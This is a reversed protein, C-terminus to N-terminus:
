DCKLVDIDKFDSIIYLYSSWPLHNPSATNLIANMQDQLVQNAKWRKYLSLIPDKVMGYDVLKDLPYSGSAFACLKGDVIMRYYILTVDGLDYRELDTPGQEMVQTANELPVITGVFLGCVLDMRNTNVKFSLPVSDTPMKTWDVGCTTFPEQPKPPVISGGTRSRKNSAM